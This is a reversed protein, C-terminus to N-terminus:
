VSETSTSPRVASRRRRWGDGAREVVGRRELTLMVISLKEATMTALHALQAVNDGPHETVLRILTTQQAATM